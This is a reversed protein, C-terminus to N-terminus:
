IERSFMVIVDYFYLVIASSAMSKAQGHSVIIKYAKSRIYNGEKKASYVSRLCAIILLFVIKNQCM